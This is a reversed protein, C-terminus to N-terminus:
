SQSGQEEPSRVMSTIIGLVICPQLFFSKYHVAAQPRSRQQHLCREGRGPPLPSSSRESPRESVQGSRLRPLPLAFTSACRDRSHPQPPQADWAESQSAECAAAAVAVTDEGAMLQKYLPKPLSTWRQGRLKQTFILSRGSYGLVRFLWFPQGLPPPWGKKISLIHKRNKLRKQSQQM